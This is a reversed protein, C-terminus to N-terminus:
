PKNAYNNTMKLAMTAMCIKDTMKKKERGNVIVEKEQRPRSSTNSSSRAQAVLKNLILISEKRGYQLSANLKQKENLSTWIGDCKEFIQLRTFISIFEM